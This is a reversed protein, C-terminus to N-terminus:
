FKHTTLNFFRNSILSQLGHNSCCKDKRGMMEYLKDFPVFSRGAESPPTLPTTPTNLVALPSTDDPNGLSPDYYSNGPYDSDTSADGDLDDHYSDGSGDDYSGGASDGSDDDGSDGSDDDGSDGDGGGSDDQAYAMQIVRENTISPSYPFVILGSFVSSSILLLLISASVLTLETSRVIQLRMLYNIYNIYNLM